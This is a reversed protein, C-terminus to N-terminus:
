PFRHHFKWPCAFGDTSVWSSKYTLRPELSSLSSSFFSPLGNKKLAKEQWGLWNERTWSAFGLIPGERPSSRTRSGLLPATAEQAEVPYSTRGESESLWM